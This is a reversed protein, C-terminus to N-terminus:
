MKAELNSLLTSTDEQKVIAVKADIIGINSMHVNVNCSELKVIKVITKNTANTKNITPLLLVVKFLYTVRLLAFLAPM